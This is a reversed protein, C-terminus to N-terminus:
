THTVRRTRITSTGHPWRYRRFGLGAGALPLTTSIWGPVTRLTSSRGCGRLDSRRNWGLIASLRWCIRFASTDVSARPRGRGLAGSGSRAARRGHASSWEVTGSRVSPRQGSHAFVPLEMSKEWVIPLKPSHIDAVSAVRVGDVGPRFGFMDALSSEGELILIAGQDVRAAWEVSASAGARAVFIHAQAAPRRELGISSLIEPWAGADNSLIAFYPLAAAHVAPSGLVFVAIAM